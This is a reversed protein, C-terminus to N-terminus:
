CHSTCKNATVTGASGGYVHLNGERVITGVGTNGVVCLGNAPPGTIFPASMKELVAMQFKLLVIITKDCAFLAPIFKVM